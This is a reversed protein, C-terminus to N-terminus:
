DNWPSSFGSTLEAQAEFDDPRLLRLELVMEKDIKELLMEGSGRVSNVEVIIDDMDVKMLHSKNWRSVLGRKV